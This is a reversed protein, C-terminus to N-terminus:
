KKSQTQCERYIKPTKESTISKKNFFNQSFFSLRNSNMQSQSRKTHYNKEVISTSNILQQVSQIGWQGVNKQVMTDYWIRASHRNSWESVDDRIILWDVFSIIDYNKRMKILKLPDYINASSQQLHKFITQSDRLWHFSTMFLENIACFNWLVFLTWVALTNEFESCIEAAWQIM